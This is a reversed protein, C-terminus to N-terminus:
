NINILDGGRQRVRQTIANAKEHKNQLRFKSRNNKRESLPITLSKNLDTVRQKVLIM